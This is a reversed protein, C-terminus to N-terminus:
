AGFERLANSSELAVREFHDRQQKIQVWDGEVLMAGLRALETGLYQGDQIVPRRHANILAEQYDRDREAINHILQQAPSNM